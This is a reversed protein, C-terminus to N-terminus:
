NNLYGLRSKKLHSFICFFLIFKKITFNSLCNLLGLWLINSFLYLWWRANDLLALGPEAPEVVGVEAVMGVLEVDALRLV